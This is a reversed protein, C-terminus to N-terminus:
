GVDEKREKKADQRRQASEEEFTAKFKLATRGLKGADDSTTM